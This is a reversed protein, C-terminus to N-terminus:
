RLTPEARRKKLQQRVETTKLDAFAEEGELRLALLHARAKALTAEEDAAAAVLKAEEVLEASTKTAVSTGALADRQDAQVLRRVCDEKSGSDLMERSKLETKLQKKQM